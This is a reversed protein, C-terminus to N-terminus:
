ANPTSARDSSRSDTDEFLGGSTGNRIVIRTATVTDDDEADGIVIVTDNVAVSKGDGSIVTDDTKKVTVQKGQGSVTITDGNIATVVGKTVNMTMGGRMGGRGGFGGERREEFSPAGFSSGNMGIQTRDRHNTVVSAVAIWSVVIIALLIVGAFAGITIIPWPPTAKTATAEAPAQVEDTNQKSTNESAAPLKGAPTNDVREKNDETETDKKAM